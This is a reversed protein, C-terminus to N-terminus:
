PFPHNSKGTTRCSSPMAAQHATHQAKRETSLVPVVPPPHSAEPSTPHQQPIHQPSFVPLSQLHKTCIHVAWCLEQNATPECRGLQAPNRHCSGVAPPISSPASICGNDTPQCPPSLMCQLSWSTMHKSCTTHHLM